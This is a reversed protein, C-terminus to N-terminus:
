KMLCYIFASVRTLRSKVDFLFITLFDCLEM